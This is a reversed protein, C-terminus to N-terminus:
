KRRKTPKKLRKTSKKTKKNVKKLRKISRRVSKLEIKELDFISVKFDNFTFFLTGSREKPKEIIYKVQKFFYELGENLSAKGGNSFEFPIPLYPVRYVQEYKGDVKIFYGSDESKYYIDIAAKIIMKYHKKLKINRKVKFFNEITFNQTNFLKTKEKQKSFKKLSHYKNVKKKQSDTFNGEQMKIISSEKINLLNSMNKIHTKVSFNSEGHKNIKFARQRISNSIDFLKDIYDKKFVLFDIKKLLVIRPKSIISFDKKIKSM